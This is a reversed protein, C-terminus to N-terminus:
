PEPLDAPPACQPFDTRAPAEGGAEECARSRRVIRRTWRARWPTYCNARLDYYGTLGVDFEVIEQAPQEGIRSTIERLALYFESALITEASGPMFPLRKYDASIDFRGPSSPDGIFLPPRTHLM